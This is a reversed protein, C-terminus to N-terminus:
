QAVCIFPHSLIIRHGDGILLTNMIANMSLNRYADGGGGGGGDDNMSVLPSCGMYEKTRGYIYIYIYIYVYMYM